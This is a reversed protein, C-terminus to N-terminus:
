FLLGFLFEFSDMIYLFIKIQMELNLFIHFLLPKPQEKLAGLTNANM